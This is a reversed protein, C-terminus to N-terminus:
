IVWGDEGLFSRLESSKFTKKYDPFGKENLPLGGWFIEEEYTPSRKGSFKVYAGGVSAGGKHAMAVTIVARGNNRVICLGM